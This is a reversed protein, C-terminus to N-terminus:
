WRFRHSPRVSVEVSLYCVVCWRHGGVDFWFSRGLLRRGLRELARDPNAHARDGALTIDLDGESGLAGPKGGVFHPQRFRRPPEVLPFRGDHATMGVRDRQPEGTVVRGHMALEDRAALLRARYEFRDFLGADLRDSRPAHATHLLIEGGHEVVAKMAAFVVLDGVAGVRRDFVRTAM